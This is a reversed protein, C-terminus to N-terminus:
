IYGLKKLEREIMKEEEKDIEEDELDSKFDQKIKNLTEEMKEVIDPKLRAINTEELPDIRLDFLMAKDKSDNARRFYKFKSTRIGIVVPQAKLGMTSEIYIPVEKLEKGNMLPSLSRGDITKKLHPLGVIDIVTPFLDVLGVQQNIKQPTISNGVFILPVHILEDYLYVPGAPNERKLTLARIEYPRLNLEKTKSLRIKNQIKDRKTILKIKLPELLSPIKKGISSQIKAMTSYEINFFKGDRSITPVFEGHDATLVILTKDLVIKKLLKGFWHDISSVIRDYQNNGYKEDDFKKPAQYPAHIDEIHIYFLWPEKLSEIKKLIKTGLGDYLTSGVEYPDNYEFEKAFGHVLNVDYTISYTNYGNSRFLQTFTSIKSHLKLLSDRKGKLKFPLLSSFVSGMSFLTGDSSSFAQTFSAGNKIISDIHPTISTKHPHQFCRDARLSDIVLILVNSKTVTM